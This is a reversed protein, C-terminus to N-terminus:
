GRGRPIAQLVREPSLPLGRLRAGVAHAIANAIAPAVPDSAVDGVARPGGDGGVLVPQLEPADKAHLHTEAFAGLLGRITAGEVHSRLLGERVVTGCDVATVLKLVRVIGTEQDVEVEAFAAALSSPPSQRAETAAAQIPGGPAVADAVEGLPL